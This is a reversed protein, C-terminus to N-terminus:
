SATGCGVELFSGQQPIVEQYFSIDEVYGGMEIEYLESYMSEPLPLFQDEPEEDYDSYIKPMFIVLRNQDPPQAM